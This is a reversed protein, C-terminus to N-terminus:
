ELKAMRHAMFLGVIVLFFTLGLAAWGKVSTFLPEVYEQAFLTFGMLLVLPTVGVVWASIRSQATLAKMRGSLEMRTQLNEACQELLPAVQGGVELSLGLATRALLFDDGPLITEIRKELSLNTLAKPSRHIRLEAPAEREFLDFCEEITLGARLGGALFLLISPGPNFM